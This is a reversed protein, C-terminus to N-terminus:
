AIENFSSHVLLYELSTQQCLCRLDAENCCNFIVNTMLSTTRFLFLSRKHLHRAQNWMLSSKHIFLKWKWLEACDRTIYSFLRRIWVDECVCRHREMTSCARRHHSVLFCKGLLLKFITTSTITNTRHLIKEWSKINQEGVCSKWVRACSEM